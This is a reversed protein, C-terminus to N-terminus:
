RQDRERNRRARRYREDRLPQLDSRNSQRHNSVHTEEKLHTLLEALENGSLASRIKQVNGRIKNPCFRALHSHQGCGYCLGKSKAIDLDMPQGNGGFIWGTGDKKVSGGNSSHEESVTKMTTTAKGQAVFGTNKPKLLKQKEEFIRWQRDFKRAYQKWGQLTAPMNELRYISAKLGHQLGQEFQDMLAKDDWGTYHEYEEFAVIYEDATKSGQELKQIKDVANATPDSAGFSLKLLEVFEEWNCTYEALHHHKEMFNRAWPEARGGKMYSLACTIKSNDEKYQNPCAWFLINLQHIFSSFKSETGDFNDPKAVDIKVRQPQVATVFQELQEICGDQVCRNLENEFLEEMQAREQQLTANRNQLARLQAQLQELEETAM